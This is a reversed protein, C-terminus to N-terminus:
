NLYLLLIEKKYYLSFNIDTHIHRLPCHVSCVTSGLDLLNPVPFSEERLIDM